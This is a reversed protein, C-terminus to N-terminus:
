KKCISFFGLFYCAIIFSLQVKMEQVLLFSFLYYSIFFILISALCSITNKYKIHHLDNVSKLGGFVILGPVAWSYVIFNKLFETYDKNMYIIISEYFGASLIQIVCVYSIGLICSVYMVKRELSKENLNKHRILFPLLMSQLPSTLYTSMNNISIGFAAAAALKSEGLHLFLFVPLFLFASLMFDAPVKPVGNVLLIKIKEFCIINKFNRFSYINIIVVSIICLLIARITFYTEVNKQCVFLTILPIVSTTLLQMNAAKSFELKSKYDVIPIVALSSSFAFLACSSVLNLNSSFLEIPFIHLFLIFFIFILLSSISLLIISNKVYLDEDEKKEVIMKTLSYPLGALNLPIIFSVARVCISFTSFKVLSWSGIREYIIIASLIAAIDAFYSFVFDKRAKIM